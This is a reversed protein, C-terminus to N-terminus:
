WVNLNHCCWWTRSQIHKERSNWLKLGTTQNRSIEKHTHLVYVSLHICNRSFYLAELTLLTVVPTSYNNSVNTDV